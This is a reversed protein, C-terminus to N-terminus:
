ISIYVYYLGGAICGIGLILGWPKPIAALKGWLMILGVVVLISSILFVKFLESLDFGPTLWDFPDFDM